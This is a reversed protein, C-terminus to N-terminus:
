RQSKYDSDSYKCLRSVGAEKLEELPIGTYGALIGLTKVYQEAHAITSVEQQMKITIDEWCSPIRYKKKNFVITKM